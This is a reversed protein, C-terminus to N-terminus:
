FPLGDDGVESAGAAPKQTERKALKDKILWAVVHNWFKSKDNRDQRHGVTAWGRLGVVSDATYEIEAGDAPQEGNVLMNACKTFVSIKWACSPHFILTETWQGLRKQFTGDKYFMCKIDMQESGSTKPGTSISFDCGVVEFPYDGDPLLEYSVNEAKSDFVAKPM